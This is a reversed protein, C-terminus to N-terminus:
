YYFMLTKVLQKSNQPNNRLKSSIVFLRLRFSTNLPFIKVKIQNRIAATHLQVVTWLCMLRLWKLNLISYCSFSKTTVILVLHAIIMLVAFMSRTTQMTCSDAGACIVITDIAMSSPSLRFIQGQAHHFPIQIGSDPVNKGTSYAM